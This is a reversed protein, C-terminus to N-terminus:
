SSPPRPAPVTGAPPAAAPSPDAPPAQTPAAFEISETGNTGRVWVMDGEIRELKFGSIEDGEGLVQGNLVALESGTQRWTATLSLVQAARPGGHTTAPAAYAQFPDRAPSDLWRVFDRRISAVDIPTAPHAATPAPGAPTATPSPPVPVPIPTAVSPPSQSAHGRLPRIINWGAAAFAAVALVSVLWPNRLAKM